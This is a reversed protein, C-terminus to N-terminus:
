RPGNDLMSDTLVHTGTRRGLEHRVRSHSRLCDDVAGADHDTVVRHHPVAVNLKGRMNNGFRAGARAYKDTHVPARESCNTDRVSRPGGCTIREVKQTGLTNTANDHERAVPRLAGSEDRFLEAHVLM